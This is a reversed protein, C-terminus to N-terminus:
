RRMLSKLIELFWHLPQSSKKALKFVKDIKIYDSANKGSKTIEKIANAANRLINGIVNRM